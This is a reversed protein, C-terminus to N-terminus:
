IIVSCRAECGARAEADILSRRSDTHTTLTAMLEKMSLTEM